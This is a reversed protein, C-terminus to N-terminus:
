TTKELGLLETESANLASLDFRFKKSLGTSLPPCITKTVEEIPPSPFVKVAILRADTKARPPFVVHRTPRSRLFGLIKLSKPRGLSLPTEVKSLLWPLSNVSIM